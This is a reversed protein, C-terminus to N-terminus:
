LLEFPSTFRSVKKWDNDNETTTTQEQAVQQNDADFIPDEELPIDGEPEEIKVNGIYGFDRKVNEEWQRAGSM